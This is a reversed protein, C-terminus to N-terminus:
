FLEVDSAFTGDDTTPLETTQQAELLTDSIQKQRAMIGQLIVTIKDMHQKIQLGEDSLENAFESSKELAAMIFEEQDDDLGMKPLRLTMEALLNSVTKKNAQSLEGIRHSLQDLIPQVTEISRTMLHTQSLIAQSEQLNKLRVDFASLVPPLTDKIRGYRDPDDVPMNKILLASLPYNIQTRSGFDIFRGREHASIIVDQEISADNVVIIEAPCIRVSLGTLDFVQGANKKFFVLDYKTDFDIGKKPLYSSILTNKKNLIDLEILDHTNSLGLRYTNPIDDFNKGQITLITGPRVCSARLGSFIIEDSRNGTPRPTVPDGTVTRSNGTSTGPMPIPRTNPRAGTGPTGPIPATGPEVSAPQRSVPQTSAPDTSTQAPLDQPIGISLLLLGVLTLSYRLM